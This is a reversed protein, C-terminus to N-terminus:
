LLNKTRNYCELMNMPLQTKIQEEMNDYVYKQIYDTNTAFHSAKSDEFSIKKHFCITRRLLYDLFCGAMSPEVYHLDQIFKLCGTNLIQRITKQPEIGSFCHNIIHTYCPKNNINRIRTTLNGTMEKKSYYNTFLWEFLYDRVTTDPEKVSVLIISKIPAKLLEGITKYKKSNQLQTHEM